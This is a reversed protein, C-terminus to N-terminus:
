EGDGSNKTTVTTRHPKLLRQARNDSENEITTAHKTSGAVKKPLGGNKPCFDSPGIEM